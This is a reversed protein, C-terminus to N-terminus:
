GGSPPAVPPKPGDAAPPPAADPKTAGAAPPTPPKPAATEPPPAAPAPPSPKVADPAPASPIVLTVTRRLAPDRGSGGVGVWALWDRGGDLHGVALAGVGLLLAGAVGYVIYMGFGRRAHNHVPAVYHVRRQRRSSPDVTM